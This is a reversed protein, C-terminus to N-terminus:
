AAVPVPVFARFDESFEDQVLEESATGYLSQLLSPTLEHV